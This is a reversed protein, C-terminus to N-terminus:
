KADKICRVSFGYNKTCDSNVYIYSQNYFLGRYWPNTNVSSSWWFGYRGIQSSFLDNREEGPLATFGSENTAGTNPSNWHTSGIEKMKGGAVSEGGLYETLNTWEGDSPVHWGIPCVNRNDSVTYWNYLAGYTAGYTGYNNNYWCYAGSSLNLWATNDTVNPIADGNRYKTTKLNEKMWTQSGIVVIPYVNGEIDTVSTSTTNIIPFTNSESTINNTLSTIRIKYGSQILTSTPLIWSSYSQLSSAISSTITYILSTNQYLEIKIDSNLNTTWQINPSTGILWNMPTTVSISYKQTTFSVQNGYNTGASNTAYARVYYLTNATLGNLTSVFSGTGIADSTHDNSITPNGITNWCVGRATISAGGDASVNGGSTATTPSPNSIEVTSVIPLSITQSTTFDRVDGYATGTANTAYARIYYKTNASLGTIPSTFEGIANKIGLETKNDSITPVSNTSWCHGHQSVQTFSIGLATLNGTINASTQNVNSISGTTVTPITPIVQTLSFDKTQTQGVIIMVNDTNTVYGDKTVTIQYAQPTLDLYEYKGDGGTTKESLNGLKVKAGDIPQGNANKITGQVNGTIEVPDSPCSTLVIMGITLVLIIQLLNKKM